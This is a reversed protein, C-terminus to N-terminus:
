ALKPLLAGLAAGTIGGRVLEVFPDVVTLTLNNVNTIGYITFDASLWLLFGVIAGAKAGGAATLSGPQSKLAYTILAAYAGAAVLIAWLIQPDRHAGTASGTNSMYFDVLLTEFLVYGVGAVVLGGIVIGAIWQKANM